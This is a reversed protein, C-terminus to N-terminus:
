SRGKGTPHVVKQRVEELLEELARSIRVPYASANRLRRHRQPLRELNAKARHQIEELGPLAATRRGERLVCALLPEGEPYSEEARAILDHDYHGAPGRFRFM